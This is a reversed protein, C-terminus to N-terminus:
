KRGIKSKKAARQKRAKEANASRCDECRCGKDGYGQMTGHKWESRLLGSTLAKDLPMLYVDIRRSLTDLGIGLKEAWESKTLTVGDYTIRVNRRQNRLQVTKTTWRCNEKSYGSNNNIRDLSLEMSHGSSLAWAVFSERSDIWEQCVSIGRAGYNPFAQSNPNECRSRMNKYALHIKRVERDIM